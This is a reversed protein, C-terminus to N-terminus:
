EQILTVGESKNFIRVKFNPDSNWTRNPNELSVFCSFTKLLVIGENAGEIIIMLDGVKAKSTTTIQIQTNEIYLIKM